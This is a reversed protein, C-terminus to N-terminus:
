QRTIAEDLNLRLSATTAHAALAAANLQPDPRKEGMALLKTAEAPHGRFYDLQATLHERLIQLEQATPQRATLARFAWILRHDAPENVHMMREAIFRAAEIYTVDNMLNLAQLPSNTRTERVQCFARATADELRNSPQTNANHLATPLARTVQEPPLDYAGRRLVFTPRPQPMEQMVMLTPFEAELKTKRQKQHHLQQFLQAVNAPAASELWASTIKLQQAETRKNVPIAAIKELSDACSLIAVDNADPLSKYVRVEDMRGRFRFESGGGGGIRLNANADGFTRFLRPLNLKLKAKARQPFDAGERLTRDGRVDGARSAM